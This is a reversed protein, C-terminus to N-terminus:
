ATAGEGVREVCTLLLTANREEVNVASEIDFYRGQFVARMSTTVGTRWRAELTISNRPMQRGNQQSEGAGTPVLKCPLVDLVSWTDDFGGYGDAVNASRQEIRVRHRLDGARM